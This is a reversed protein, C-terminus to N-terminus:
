RTIEAEVEFQGELLRIVYGGSDELELDYRGRLVPTASTNAASMYIRVNGNASDERDEAPGSMFIFGNSTLNSTFELLVETHAAERVQMRASYNSLDIASGDPNKYNIPLDFTTGQEMTIDYRGASV